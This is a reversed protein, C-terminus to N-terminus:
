KGEAADLREALKEVNEREVARSLVDLVYILKTGKATDIEDRRMEVYLRAIERRIQTGNELRFREGTGPKARPKKPCPPPDASNSANTSIVAGWGSGNQVTKLSPASRTM